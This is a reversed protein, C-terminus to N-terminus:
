SWYINLIIGVTFMWSRMIVSYETASEKSPNSWFGKPYVKSNLKNRTAYLEGNHIFSYTFCQAVFFIVGNAISYTVLVVVASLAALLIAREVVFVPHMDHHGKTDTPITDYYHGQFYANLASSLIWMIFCVIVFIIESIV